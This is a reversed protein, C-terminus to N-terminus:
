TTLHSMVRCLLIYAVLGGQGKTARNRETGFRAGILAPVGKAAALFHEVLEVLVVVDDRQERALSAPFPASPHPLLAVGDVTYLAEFQPDASEGSADQLLEARHRLLDRGAVDIRRQLLAGDISGLPDTGIVILFEAEVLDRRMIVIGAPPFASRYKEGEDVQVLPVAQRLAILRDELLGAMVGVGPHRGFVIQDVRRRELTQEGAAGLQVAERGREDVRTERGGLIKVLLNGRGIGAEFLDVFGQVVKGVGGM